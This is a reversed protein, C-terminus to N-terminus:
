DGAFQHYTGVPVKKAREISASTFRVVSHMTAAEFCSPRDTMSTSTFQM